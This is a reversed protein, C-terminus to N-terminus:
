TYYSIYLNNMVKLHIFEISKVIPVEKVEREEKKKVLARGM